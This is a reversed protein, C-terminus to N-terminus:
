APPALEDQCHRRVMALADRRAANYGLPQDAGELLTDNGVLDLCVAHKTESRLPESLRAIGAFLAPVADASLRSLYPTYVDGTHQARELNHRAVYAEPNFVNMGLLGTVALAISVPGVWETKARLLSGVGLLAFVVGLWIAFTTSYLRLMTQGYEGSYLRIRHVSSGVVVISLTCLIISLSGLITRTRGVCRQLSGRAAFLVILTIASAALLQFFGSRAYEKYSGGTRTLVYQEGGVAALIQTAAFAAYLAVFGSMVTILEHAGFSRTLVPDARDTKTTRFVGFACLSAAGVILVDALRNKLFVDSVKPVTLFSAFVPDAAAFLMGMIFLLPGAVLCGRIVSRIWRRREDNINVTTPLVSALTDTVLPLGTLVSGVARINRRLLVSMPSWITGGKSYSAASIILLVSVIVDLSILWPSSRLSLFMAFCLAFLMMVLSARRRVRGPGVLVVVSLAIALSTAITQVGNAVAVRIGVGVALAAGLSRVAEGRAMTRHAAIRDALTRNGVWHPNPAATEFGPSPVLRQDGPHSRGEDVPWDVARDVPDPMIPNLVASSSHQFSIDTPMPDTMPERYLVSAPTGDLEHPFKTSTEPGSEAANCM